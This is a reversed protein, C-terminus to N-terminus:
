PIAADGAGGDVIGTGFTFDVAFTNPSFTTPNLTVWVGPSPQMDNSACCTYIPSPNAVVTIHVSQSRGDMSIAVLDCTGGPLEGM